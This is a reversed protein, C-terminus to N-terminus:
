SLHGLPKLLVGPFHTYTLLTDLTRIGREGGCVVGSCDLLTGLGANNRTKENIIHGLFDALIGGCGFAPPPVEPPILVYGWFVGLPAYGALLHLRPAQMNHRQGGLGQHDQSFQVRQGVAM